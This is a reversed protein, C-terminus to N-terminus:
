FRHAGFFIFYEVICFAPHFSLAKRNEYGGRTRGVKVGDWCLVIDGCRLGARDASGHPEIRSIVTNLQGDSGTRRGALSLGFGSIGHGGKVPDRQLRAVQLICPTLPPPPKKREACDVDDIIIRIAEREFSRRDTIGDRSSISPRPSQSRSISPPAPDSLQTPMKVLRKDGAHCEDNAVYISASASPSRTAASKTDAPMMERDSIDSYSHRPSPCHADTMASADAPSVPSPSSDFTGM